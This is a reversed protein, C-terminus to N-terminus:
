RVSRQMEFSAVVSSVSSASTLFQAQVSRDRFLNKAGRQFYVRSQSGAAQFTRIVRTEAVLQRFISDVEHMLDPKWDDIIANLEIGGVSNVEDDFVADDDFELRHLFQERQVESLNEGVQLETPV